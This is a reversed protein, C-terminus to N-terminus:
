RTFHRLLLKLLMDLVQSTLQLVRGPRNEVQVNWGDLRGDIGSGDDILMQAGYNLTTGDQHTRSTRSRHAIHDFAVLGQQRQVPMDVFRTARDFDALGDADIGAAGIALADQVACYEFEIPAFPQFTILERGPSAHRGCRPAHRGRPDGSSYWSHSYM